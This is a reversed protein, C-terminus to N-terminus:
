QDKIAQLEFRPAMQVVKEKILCGFLDPQFGSKETDVTTIM